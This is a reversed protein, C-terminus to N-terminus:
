SFAGAPKTTYPRFRLSYVPWSAVPPNVGHYLYCIQENLQKTMNGTCLEMLKDGLVLRFPGRFSERAPGLKNGHHETVQSM